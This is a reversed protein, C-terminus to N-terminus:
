LTTGGIGRLKIPDPVTSPLLTDDAAFSHLVSSSSPGLYGRADDSDPLFAPFPLELSSFEDQVREENSPEWVQQFVPQLEPYDGDGTLFDAM